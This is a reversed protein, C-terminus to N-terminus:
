TLIWWTSDGSNLSCRWAVTGVSRGAKLSFFGPQNMKSGCAEDIVAPNQLRPHSLNRFVVRGFSLSIMVHGFFSFVFLCVWFVVYIHAIYFVNLIYSTM